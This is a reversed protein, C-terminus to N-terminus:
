KGCVPYDVNKMNAMNRALIGFAESHPEFAIVKEYQISLFGTFQGVNAGIDLAVGDERKAVMYPLLWEEHMKETLM